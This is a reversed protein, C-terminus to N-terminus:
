INQGGYCQRCLFSDFHAFVSSSHSKGTLVMGWGSEGWETYVGNHVETPMGNVDAMNEAM